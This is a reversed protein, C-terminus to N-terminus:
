ENGLSYITYIKGDRAKFSFCDSPLGLGWSPEPFQNRIRGPLYPFRCDRAAPSHLYLNVATREKSSLDDAGRKVLIRHADVTTWCSTGDVEYAHAFWSEPSLYLGDYLEKTFIAPDVTHGSARRFLSRAWRGWNWQHCTMYFPGLQFSRRWTIGQSDGQYRVLMEKMDMGLWVQIAMGAFFWGAVLYCLPRVGGLILRGYESHCRLMLVTGSLLFPMAIHYGNSGLISYLGLTAGSFLWLELDDEVFAFLNRRNRYLVVTLLSVMVAPWVGILFASWNKTVGILFTLCTNRGAMDSARNLAAPSCCLFFTGISLLLWAVVQSNTFSRRHAVISRIVMSGLLAASMPPSFAEQGWGYVFFLPTSWWPVGKWWLKLLVLTFVGMWLYNVCFAADRIYTTEQWAFLFLLLFVVLYNLTTRPIRAVYLVLLVLVMYMCANCVDFFTNLEFGSFFGVIFHVFIRGSWDHYYGVYQQHILQLLSDAQPCDGWHPTSLGLWRYALEDHAPISYNNFAVLWAAFLLIFIWHCYQGM